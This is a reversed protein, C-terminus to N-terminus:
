RRWKGSSGIIFRLTFSGNAPGGCAFESCSETRLRSGGFRCRIFCRCFSGLSCYSEGGSGSWSVCWWRLESDLSSRGLGTFGIFDCSSAWKGDYSWVTSLGVFWFQSSIGFCGSSAGSSSVGASCEDCDGSQQQRRDCIGGDREAEDASRRSSASCRGQSRGGRGQTSGRQEWGSSGRGRWRCSRDQFRRAWPSGGADGYWDLSRGRRGSRDHVLESSFTQYGYSEPGATGASRACPDLSGPHFVLTPHIPFARNRLPLEISLTRGASLWPELVFFPLSREFAGRGCKLRLRVQRLDCPTRASRSKTMMLLRSRM